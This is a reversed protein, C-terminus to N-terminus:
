AAPPAPELYSLIFAGLGLLVVYPLLGFWGVYPLAGALGLAM